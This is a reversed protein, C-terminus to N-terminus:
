QDYRTSTIKGVPDVGDVAFWYENVEEAQSLFHRFGGNDGSPGDLPSSREKMWWGAEEYHQSAQEVIDAVYYWVYPLNSDTNMANNYQWEDKVGGRLLRARASM